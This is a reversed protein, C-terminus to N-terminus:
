LDQRCEDLALLVQRSDDFQHALLLVVKSLYLSAKEPGVADLSTALKEYITELEEFRM